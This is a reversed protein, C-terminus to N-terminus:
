GKKRSSALMQLTIPLCTLITGGQKCKKVNCYMHKSRSTIIKKLFFCCTLVVVHEDASAEETTAQIIGHKIQWYKTQM